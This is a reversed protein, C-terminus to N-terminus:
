ASLLGGKVEMDKGLTSILINQSVTNHAKCTLYIVDNQRREYLTVMNTLCLKDNTFSHQSDWIM